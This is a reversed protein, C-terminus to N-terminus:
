KFLMESVQVETEEQLIEMIKELSADIRSKKGKAIFGGQIKVNKNSLTLNWNNKKNLDDIFAKTIFKEGEGVFIEENGDLGVSGFLYLILSKYKEQDTKVEKLVEGYLRDLAERKVQELRINSEIVYDAILANVRQKVRKQKEEEAKKLIEKAREEAEKLIKDREANAKGLIEQKKLETEAKIKDLIDQLGM